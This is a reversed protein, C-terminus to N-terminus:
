AEKGVWQKGTCWDIILETFGKRTGLSVNVEGTTKMEKHLNYKPLILHKLGLSM